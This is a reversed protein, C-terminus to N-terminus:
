GLRGYCGPLARLAALAVGADADLTSLRTAYKLHNGRDKGDEYGLVTGPPEHEHFVEPVLVVFGRGALQVALRRIPPTQQFIESYLVLGPHAASPRHPDHPSYTYCRMLGTPTDLDLVADRVIM